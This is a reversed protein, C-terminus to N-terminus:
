SFSYTLTFLYKEVTNLHKEGDFGGCVYLFGDLVGVGAGSRPSILPAITLWQDSSPDYREVSQYRTANDCGGIAYIYRNLTACTM